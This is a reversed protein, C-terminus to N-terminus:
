EGDERFQYMEEYYKQYDKSTVRDMWEANEFYWAITKRIGDAFMTEPVWGIESKIKDPAIAYRRDHGKRDEVYTILEESIREKRPDGEPLMDKLTDLIIHVIEINQKENHGGINYTQGLSGLEQVMDIAKVHDRVYLWDRVNKGDGYVPLKKGLLANHIILPILKEPFQYPGYNNSCNTINAPFKYTDIYSKVLMDSSAKSASYPSHPDYPTTEYFYEGARELSGYVEDTSVHLFKKGQVYGEGETWANKACDLLILTGLVNTKVFIEPSRISRDVHSEAAFHVVRDIDNEEFIKSIAERDCIDAKIFTYNRRKEVDKLNELNGAYTLADVNIIRISDNYKQFMYHIYNAGIFGAGGTVLYTKMRIEELSQV